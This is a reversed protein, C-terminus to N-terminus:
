AKKPLRTLQADACMQKTPWAAQGKGVSILLLSGADDIVGDYTTAVNQVEDNEELWTNQAARLPKEDAHNL